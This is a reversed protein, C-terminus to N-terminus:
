YPSNKIKKSIIVAAELIFYKPKGDMKKAM